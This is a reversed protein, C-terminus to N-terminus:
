IIFINNFYLFMHIEGYILNMVWDDWYETKSFLM